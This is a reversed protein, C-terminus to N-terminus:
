PFINRIRLGKAEAVNGLESMESRALVMWDNVSRVTNANINNVTFDWPFETLRKPIYPPAKLQSIQLKGNKISLKSAGVYFSNEGVAAAEHYADSLHIDSSKWGQSEITGDDHVAFITNETIGDRIRIWDVNENTTGSIDIKPVSPHLQHLFEHVQSDIRRRHRIGDLLCVTVPSGFNSQRGVRIYNADVDTNNSYKHACAGDDLTEVGGASFLSKCRVVGDTEVTFQDDDGQQVWIFKGDPPPYAKLKLQGDKLNSDDM